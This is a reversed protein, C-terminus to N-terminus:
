TICIDFKDRVCHCKIKFKADSNSYKCQISAQNTSLYTISPGSADKTDTCTGSSLSVSPKADTPCNVYLQFGTLRCTGRRDVNYPQPTLYASYSSGSYSGEVSVRHLPWIRNCHVQKQRTHLTPHM